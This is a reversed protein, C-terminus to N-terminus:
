HLYYITDYRISCFVGKIRATRGARPVGSVRAFMIINCLKFKARKRLPHRRSTGATEVLFTELSYSGFLLKTKPKTVSRVSVVGFFGDIYLM